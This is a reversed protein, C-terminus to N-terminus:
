NGAGERRATEEPEGSQELAPTNHLSLECARRRRVSSRTVDCTGGGKAVAMAQSGNRGGKEDEVLDEESKDGLMKMQASVGCLHRSSTAEWEHESAALFHLCLGAYCTPLVLGVLGRCSTPTEPAFRSAQSHGPSDHQLDSLPPLLPVHARSFLPLAASTTPTSLKAPKKQRQTHSM